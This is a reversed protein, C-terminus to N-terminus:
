GAPRSPASGARPREAYKPSVRGRAHTAVHDVPASAQLMHTGTTLAPSLAAVLARRGMIEIAMPLPRRRRGAAPWGKGRCDSQLDDCGIQERKGGRM